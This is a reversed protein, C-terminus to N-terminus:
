WCRSWGWPRRGEAEEGGEEVEGEEGEVEVVTVSNRGFELYNIIGM